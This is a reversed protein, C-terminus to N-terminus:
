GASQPCHEDLAGRVSPLVWVWGELTKISQINLEEKVRDITRESIKARKTAEYVLKALIPGDKLLQILLEKALEKQYQNRGERHTDRAILQAATVDCYGGWKFDGEETIRFSLSQGQLSLNYKNHVMVSKSPDEPDKGILLMSRVVGAFAYSGAGIHIAFDKVSKSPHRIMLFGCRTKRALGALENMLPAVAQAKNMDIKPGLYSTINDIIVLQPQVQELAAELVKIQSLDFPRYNQADQPQPIESQGDAMGLKNLHIGTQETSGKLILINDGNANLKDLRPKITDELGDEQTLYIVKAPETAPEDFISGGASLAAALALAFYTKGTGPLGDLITVKGRPIYPKWLWSIEEAEVASIKTLLPEYM